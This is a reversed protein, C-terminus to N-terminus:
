IKCLYCCLSAYNTLWVAFEILSHGSRYYWICRYIVIFHNIIKRQVLGKAEEHNTIIEACVVRLRNEMYMKIKNRTTPAKSPSFENCYFRRHFNSKKRYANDSHKHFFSRKLLCDGIIFPPKIIVGRVLCILRWHFGEAERSGRRLASRQNYEEARFLM